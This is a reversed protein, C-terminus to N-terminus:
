LTFYLVKILEFNMQEPAMLFFWRRVHNVMYSFVLIKRYRVLKKPLLSAITSVQLQESEYKVLLLVVAGTRRTVFMYFTNEGFFHERM